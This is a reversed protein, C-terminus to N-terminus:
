RVLWYAILGFGVVTYLLTIWNAWKLIRARRAATPNAAGGPEDVPRNPDFKSFGAV